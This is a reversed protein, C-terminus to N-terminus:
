LPFPIHHQLGRDVDRYAHDSVSQPHPADIRHLLHHYKLGHPATICGEKEKERSLPITTANSRITHCYRWAGFM